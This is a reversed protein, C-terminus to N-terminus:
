RILCWAMFAYPPTFTYLWMKNVEASTPPSHDAERGPRKVGPSLAWLVWHIPPQTSGLASRSSTSFLFNKVRSPNSSRDRPLGARLWNSYRSCQGSRPSTIIHLPNIYGLIPVLPPSKHVRYHVKPNWLINPFEQTASFNDAEWSHSLQM